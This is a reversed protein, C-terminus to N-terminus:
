QFFCVLFISVPWGTAKKLQKRLFHTAEYLQKKVASKTINLKTAIEEIPMDSQTRMEFIRRRQPSLQDIAHKAALLYEKYIVKEHVSEMEYNFDQSQIIQKFKTERIRRNILENKAMRFLYAQFSNVNVLLEKKMWIKLFLDQLIEEADEKSNKVFTLIYRNLLPSYQNYLQKYAERDGVAVKSLLVSDLVTLRQNM